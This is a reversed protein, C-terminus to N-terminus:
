EHQQSRRTKMQKSVRAWQDPSKAHPLKKAELKAEWLVVLADGQAIDKTNTMVPITIEVADSVPDTRDVECTMIDRVVAIKLVCNCEEPKQSRRVLWFPWPFCHPRWAHDM